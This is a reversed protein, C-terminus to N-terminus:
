VDGTSTNTNVSERGIAVLENAVVAAALAIAALAHRAVDEFDDEDDAAESAIGAHVLAAVLAEDRQLIDGEQANM